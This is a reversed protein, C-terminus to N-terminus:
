EESAWVRRASSTTAAPVDDRDPEFAIAVPMSGSPTLPAEHVEFLDLMTTMPRERYQPTMM